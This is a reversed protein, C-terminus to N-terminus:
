GTPQTRTCNSPKPRSSASATWRATSLVATRSRRWPCPWRLRLMAWPSVGDERWRASSQRRQHWAIRAAAVGPEAETCRLPPRSHQPVRRRGTAGCGWGRARSHMGGRGRVGEVGLWASQRARAEKNKCLRMDANKAEGTQFSFICGLFNILVGAKWILYRIFRFKRRRNCQIVWFTLSFFGVNEADALYSEAHYNKLKNGWYM